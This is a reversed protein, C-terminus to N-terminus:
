HSHTNIPPAKLATVIAVAYDGDHSLSLATEHDLSWRGAERECAAVTGLTAVPQWGDAPVADPGTFEGPEAARISWGESLAERPSSGICVARIQM